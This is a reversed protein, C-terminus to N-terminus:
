EQRLIRHVSSCTYPGHQWVGEACNKKFEYCVDVVVMYPLNVHLCRVAAKLLTPVEWTSPEEKFFLFIEQSAQLKALDSGTGTPFPLPPGRTWIWGRNGDSHTVEASLSLHFTQPRRLKKCDIGCTLSLDTFVLTELLNKEESAHPLEAHEKYM